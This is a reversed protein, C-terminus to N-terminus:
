VRDMLADVKQWVPTVPLYGSHAPGDTLVDLHRIRSHARVFGESRLASNLVPVFLGSAGILAQGEPGAAFKVFEWAQQKRRSAAAIALGTTGINSYAGHGQPGVPGVVAQPARILQRGEGVVAARGLLM